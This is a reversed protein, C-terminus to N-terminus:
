IMEIDESHEHNLSDLEEQHLNHNIHERKDFEVIIEDKQTRLAREMEEKYLKKAMGVARHFEIVIEDQKTSINRESEIIKAHANDLTTAVEFIYMDNTMVFAHLSSVTQISNEKPNM